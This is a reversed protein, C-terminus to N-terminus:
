SFGGSRAQPPLPCVMGRAILVSAVIDAWGSVVYAFRALAPDAPLVLEVFPPLAMRFAFFLSTGLTIWFWDRSTVRDPEGISRRVLTYLSGALLLFAQFPWLIQNFTTALGVAPILAVLAALHLPIAVRFALRSVPDQQWLSLTWLMVANQLPVFIYLIWLNSASSEGTWYQAADSALLALNWVIVWRRPPTLRFRYRVAGLLPLAQAYTAAYLVWPISRQVV